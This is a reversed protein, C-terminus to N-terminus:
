KIFRKYAASTAYRLIIRIVKWFNLKPRRLMVALLNLLAKAKVCTGFLYPARRLLLCLHPPLKVSVVIYSQKERKFIALQLKRKRIGCLSKDKLTVALVYALSEPMGILQPSKHQTPTKMTKIKQPIRFNASKM